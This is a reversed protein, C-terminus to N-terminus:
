SREEKIWNDCKSCHKYDFFGFPRLIKKYTSVWFFHWWKHPKVYEGCKNCVTGEAAFYQCTNGHLYHKAM